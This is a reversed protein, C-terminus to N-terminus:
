GYVRIKIFSKNTNENHIESKFNLRNVPLYYTSGVQNVKM